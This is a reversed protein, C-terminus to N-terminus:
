AAETIRVKEDTAWGGIVHRTHLVFKDVEPAATLAQAAEQGRGDLVLPLLAPKQNAWAAVGTAGGRTRLYLDPWDTGLILHRMASRGHEALHSLVTHIKDEDTADLVMRADTRANALQAELVDAPTDPPKPMARAKAQEVTEEAQVIMENAIGTLDRHAQEYLAVMRERKGTGSLNMDGMVQERDRRHQDIRARLQQALTELDSRRSATMLGRQEAKDLLTM